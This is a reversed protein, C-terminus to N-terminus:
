IHAILGNGQYNIRSNIFANRTHSECNHVSNLLNKYTLQQHIVFTLQVNTGVRTEHMARARTALTHTNCAHSVIGRTACSLNCLAHINWAVLFRPERLCTVPINLSKDHHLAHVRM